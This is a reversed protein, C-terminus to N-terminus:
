ISAPMFMMRVNVPMWEYLWFEKLLVCAACEVVLNRGGILLLLEYPERNVLTFTLEGLPTDHTLREALELYDSEVVLRGSLVTM